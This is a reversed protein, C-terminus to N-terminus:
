QTLRDLEETTAGDVVAKDYVIERAGPGKKKARNKKANDAKYARRYEKQIMERYKAHNLVLWGKDVRQIRIGRNPQNPNKRDPSELVKIAEACLKEDDLNALRNMSAVSGSVYGGWDMVALMTIWVVRTPLDEEWISSTVIESWLPTWMKQM